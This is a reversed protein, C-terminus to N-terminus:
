DACMLTFPHPHPAKFQRLKSVSKTNTADCGVAWNVDTPYAVIGGRDLIRCVQEIHKVPVPDIYTFLHQM